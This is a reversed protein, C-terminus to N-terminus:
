HQNSTSTKGANISPTAPIKDIINTPSSSVVANNDSEPAEPKDLMRIIIGLLTQVKPGEIKKPFFVNM